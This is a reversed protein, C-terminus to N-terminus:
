DPKRGLEVRDKPLHEPLESRIYEVLKERVMCRLEWADSSNAASMLARLELTQETANTVQLVCVKRDWKPANELIEKLKDRVKDVPVTYDAYVFVTGLIDASIRTWNQFPKSTFHSIPIILRRQDWIRVVVYTLNIEEIRGWEGEVIVVDDLRIPQTLAIQLGALVMSLSQQAAFGVIVGVVGASALLSVGLQRVKDITMLAVGLAVVVVAINLYRELVRFQTYVRRARLNDAADIDYRSLMVERGVAILRMVLWAFMAIMALRAVHLLRDEVTETLELLPLALLFGLPLAGAFLPAALQRRLIKFM